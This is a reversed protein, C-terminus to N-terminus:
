GDDTRARLDVTLRDQGRTVTFLSVVAALAFAVGLLELNEEVGSLVMALPTVQSASGDILVWWLAEIVLAGVLFLTAGAFLLTRSERPLGWVFRLLILAVALAVVLGPVVWASVAGTLPEPLLQEGVAALREHIMTYEDVSAYLGVAAFAAFGLRRGSWVCALGLSVLGFMAWLVSAVWAPINHENTFEFGLFIDRTIVAVASGETAQALVYTLIACVDLAAITLLASVVVRRPVTVAEQSQAVAPLRVASIPAANGARENSM